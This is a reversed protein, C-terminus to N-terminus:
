YGTLIDIMDIAINLFLVFCEILRIESDTRTVHKEDPEVNQKILLLTEKEKLKYM